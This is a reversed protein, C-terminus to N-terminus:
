DKVVKIRSALDSCHLFYKDHLDQIAPYYVRSYQNYIGWFQLRKDELILALIKREELCKAVDLVKTEKSINEWRQHILDAECIQINKM